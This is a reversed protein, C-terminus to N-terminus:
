RSSGDIERVLEGWDASFDKKCKPCHVSRGLYSFPVDKDHQCHACRILFRLTEDLALGEFAEAPVGPFEIDEPALTSLQSVTLEPIEVIRHAMRRIAHEFLNRSALGDGFVRDRHHHVHEFGLLVKARTLPDLSYRNKDCM